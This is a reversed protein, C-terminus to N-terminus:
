REIKYEMSEFQEKTVVFKIDENKYVTELCDYNTDACLICKEKNLTRDLNIKSVKRGNVYDGVEILDIINSSSKIIENKTIRLGYLSSIDTTYREILDDTKDKPLIEIIKEISGGLNRTRVYDGVNIILNKM